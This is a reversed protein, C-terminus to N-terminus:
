DSAKARLQQAYECMPHQVAPNGFGWETATRCLYQTLNSGGGHLAMEEVPAGCFPCGDRRMEALRQRRREKHLRYEERREPTMRAEIRRERWDAISEGPLRPESPQGGTLKLAM